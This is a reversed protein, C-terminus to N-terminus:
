LRYLVFKGSKTKKLFGSGLKVVIYAIGGTALGAVIEKAIDLLHNM